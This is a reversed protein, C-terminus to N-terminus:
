RTGQRALSTEWRTPYSISRAFVSSRPSMRRTPRVAGQAAHGSEDAAQHQDHDADREAYPRITSPMQAHAAKRMTAPVQTSSATITPIARSFTRCRDPRRLVLFVTM